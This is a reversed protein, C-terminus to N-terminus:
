CCRYALDLRDRWPTKANKMTRVPAARCPSVVMSLIYMLLYERSFFFKSLVCGGFNVFVGVFWETSAVHFWKSLFVAARM